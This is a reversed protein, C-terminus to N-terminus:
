HVGWEGTEPEYERIGGACYADQVTIDQYLKRDVDNGTCIQRLILQGLNRSVAESDPLRKSFVVYQRCYDLIGEQINRITGNLGDEEKYLPQPRGSSDEEFCILQGYPAQLAAELFLQSIYIASHEMEMRDDFSYYGKMDCGIKEPKRDVSACVYYGAVPKRIMKSLFYQITGSYGVDVVALEKDAYDPLIEAIYKMYSTREKMAQKLIEPIYPELLNMIRRLDVQTMVDQDPVEEPLEMGLREVLLGSLRGVYNPELINEIDEATQVAAISNARRSALFYVSKVNEKGCFIHYIQQFLYGERSLFLLYDINDKQSESIVWEMFAAFLPGFATYGLTKGDMIRMKGGSAMAFPSNFWNGNVLMGLILRDKLSDATFKDYYSTMQYMHRPNLVWYYAKGLDSPKQIDHCPHDGVHITLSNDFKSYFNNWMTGDDKRCGMECSVWIDEYGQYGHKELLKEIVERELYMDSLLIIRKKRRVLEQFIWLIDRRPISLELETQIECKKWNEGEEPSIHAIGEIKKYIASLTCYCGLQGVAEREAEKRMEFFNLKRGYKKCLQHEVIRFVDDPEYVARTIMTDFIDFTVVDFSSLRALMTEKTESFYTRFLKKSTDLRVLQDELDYIGLHYGNSKAVFSIVRELAHASTGDTQGEEPPFDAYSLKLEFLNQIAAKKAWFFSGVPYNFVASETSLGLQLMIEKGIIENALWTHTFVPLESPTEPFFLGIKEAEMVSFIRRMDNENEPLLTSLAERRWNKQENGTFLSKKSHIHLLYDYCVLEKGFVVYFPAIDRGQNRVEKITLNKLHELQKEAKEKMCDVAAGQQCSIFLDFPYPIHNIFSLFEELLDEYFLHLHIAIKKGRLESVTIENWPISREEDGSWIQSSKKKLMKAVLFRNRIKKFTYSIGYKRIYRITKKVLVSLNRNISM